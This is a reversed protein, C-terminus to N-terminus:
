CGLWEADPTGLHQATWGSMSRVRDRDFGSLQDWVGHYGTAAQWIEADFFHPERDMPIGALVARDAGLDHLAVKAAMMGSSGSSQQGPFRFEVLDCWRQIRDGHVLYEIAPEFGNSARADRWGRMKDPHLTVWADLRGPWITGADNCAVVYDPAFLDIAAAWDDRVGAAGGLCLALRM